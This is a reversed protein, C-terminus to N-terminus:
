LRKSGARSAGTQRTQPKLGLLVAVDRLVVPDTVKVPLGQALATKEAWRRAV